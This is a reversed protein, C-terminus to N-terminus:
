RTEAESRYQEMLPSQAVLRINLAHLIAALTRYQVTDKGHEVDFVATKGVGALEALAIRSLGARKRHYRIISDLENMYLM